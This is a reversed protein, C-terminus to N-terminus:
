LHADGSCSRSIPTSTTRARREPHLREYFKKRCRLHEARELFAGVQSIVPDDGSKQPLAAVNIRDRRIQTPVLGHEPEHLTAVTPVSDLVHDAAIARVLVKMVM